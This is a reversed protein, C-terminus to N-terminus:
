LWLNLGKFTQLRMAAVNLTFVSVSTKTSLLYFHISHLCIVQFVKIIFIFILIFYQNGIHMMAIYFTNKEACM